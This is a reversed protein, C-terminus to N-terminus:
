HGFYCSEILYGFGSPKWRGEEMDTEFNELRQHEQVDMDGLM